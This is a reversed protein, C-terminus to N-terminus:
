ALWWQQVHAHSTMAALSGRLDPAQGLNSATLPRTYEEGLQWVATVTRHCGDAADRCVV